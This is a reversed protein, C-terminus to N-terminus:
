ILYKTECHTLIISKFIVIEKGSMHWKLYYLVATAICFFYYLKFNEKVVSVGWRM